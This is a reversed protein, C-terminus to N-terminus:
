YAAVENRLTLVIMNEEPLNYHAKFTFTEEVFENLDRKQEYDFIKVKSLDITITPNSGVGITDPHVFQIRFARQENDNQMDKFVNDKNTLTIEGEVTFQQNLIDDPSIDGLANELAINSSIEITCNRIKTESAANLGAVNTAHKFTLHQPLFDRELTHAVANTDTVSAKTMLSIEYMIYDGLEANIQISDVVANAFAEDRNADKIVATLSQHQISQNVTFVHDYVGAEVEDPTDTGFLSLFFLGSSEDKLKGKAVIEGYRNVLQMDDSGEIVALSQEDDVGEVKDEMELEIWPIWYDVNDPTGRVAEKGIGFSVQRGIQKTM